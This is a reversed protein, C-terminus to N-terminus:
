ERRIRIYLNVLSILSIGLQAFCSSLLIGKIVSNTYYVITGCCISFFVVNLTKYKNPLFLRPIYNITLIAGCVYFLWILVDFYCVVGLLSILFIFIEDEGDELLRFFNKDGTELVIGVLCRAVCIGVLLRIIISDSLHHCTFVCCIFILFIVISGITDSHFDSIIYLLRIGCIFGAIYLGWAIDYHYCFMGILPVCFVYCLYIVYQLFVKIVKMM